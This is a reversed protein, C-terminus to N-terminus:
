KCNKVNPTTMFLGLAIQAGERPWAGAPRRSPFFCSVPTFSLAGEAEESTDYSMQAGGGRPPLNQTTSSCPQDVSHAVTTLPLGTTPLAVHTTAM